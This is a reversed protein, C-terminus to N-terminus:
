WGYPIFDIAFKAVKSGRDSIRMEITILNATRNAFVVSDDPEFLRNWDCQLPPGFPLITAFPCPCFWTFTSFPGMYTRYQSERRILSSLSRYSRWQRGDAGLRDQSPQATCSSPDVLHSAESELSCYGCQYGLWQM